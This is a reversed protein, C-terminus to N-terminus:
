ATKFIRPDYGSYDQFRVAEGQLLSMCRLGRGGFGEAPIEEVPSEEPDRGVLLFSLRRSRV